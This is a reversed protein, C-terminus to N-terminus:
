NSPSSVDLTLWTSLTEKPGLTLLTGTGDEGQSEPINAAPWGTAPELGLVYERGFFPSDTYGGYSRWCWLSDFVDTDFAVTVALDASPNKVTYTGDSLTHIYSLDHIRSNPGSIASLDVGDTSVPWKFQEGPILESEGQPENDVTVLSEPLEIVSEPSLLPEGFAIHQLWVVPLSCESENEVDWEIRIESGQLEMRRKVRVPYRVLEVFCDLAAVASPQNPFEIDWGMFPTEGHLGYTAGQASGGVGALPLCDQWGGPYHDMWATGDYTSPRYPGDLSQWNHPAEFLINESDRPRVAVIDAGKDPLVDVSLSETELTVTRM